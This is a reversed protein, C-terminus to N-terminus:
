DPAQYQSHATLMRDSALFLMLGGPGLEAAIQIFSNHAAMQLRSASIAAQEVPFCAIGVGTLPNAAIMHLGNKWVAIRGGEESLNYDGEYNYITSIRDWFTTPAAFTFLVAGTGLILLTIKRAQRSGRVFMLAATVCLGLFGGRSETLAVGALMLAISTVLLLKVRRRSSDIMFFAFPIAIVFLLAMDNPDYSSGVAIRGPETKYTVLPGLHVLIALVLCCSGAALVAAVTRAALDNRVAQLLLYVFAVNKAYAEVIYRISQSPWISTPVTIIALALIGILLGIQPASRLRVRGMLLERSSLLYVVLGIATLKALQLGGLAPFLQLTQPVFFLTLAAVGVLLVRTRRAGSLDRSREGSLSLGEATVCCGSM